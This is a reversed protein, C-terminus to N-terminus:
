IHTPQPSEVSTYVTLTRSYLTEMLQMHSLTHFHRYVFSFQFFPFSDLIVKLDLSEPHIGWM